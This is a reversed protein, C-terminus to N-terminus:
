DAVPQRILDSFFQANQLKGVKEIIKDWYTKGLMRPILRKGHFVAEHNVFMVGRMVMEIETQFHVAGQFGPRNRFVRRSFWTFFSQCDEHFIVREIVYIKFAIDGGPFVSGAPNQNPVFSTIRKQFLIFVLYSKGEFSYLQLPIKGEQSQFSSLLSVFPYQQLSFLGKIVLRIRKRVTM